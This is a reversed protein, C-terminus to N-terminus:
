RQAHEGRRYPIDILGRGQPFIHELVHARQSLSALHGQHGEWGEDFSGLRDQDASGGRQEQSALDEQGALVWEHKLLSRVPRSDHHPRPCRYVVVERSGIVSAHHLYLFETPFDSSPLERAQVEELHTRHSAHISGGQIVAHAVVKYQGTFISGKGFQFTHM